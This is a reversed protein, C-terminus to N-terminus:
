ATAQLRLQAVQCSHQRSQRCALARWYRRALTGRMHDVFIEAPQMGIISVQGLLIQCLLLMVPPRCCRVGFSQVHGGASGGIECVWGYSEQRGCTAAYEIFAQLM